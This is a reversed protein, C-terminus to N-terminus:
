GFANLTPYFLLKYKFKNVEFFDMNESNRLMAYARMHWIHGTIYSYNQQAKRELLFLHM